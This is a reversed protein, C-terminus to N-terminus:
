KVNKVYKANDGMICLAISRSLCNQVCFFRGTLM